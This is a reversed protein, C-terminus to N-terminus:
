KVLKLIPHDSRIDENFRHATSHTRDELTTIISALHKLDSPKLDPDDLMTAIREVLLYRTQALLETYDDRM